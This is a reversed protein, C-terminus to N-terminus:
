IVGLSHINGILYPNESSIPRKFGMERTSVAPQAPQVLWALTRFILFYNFLLLSLLQVCLSFENSIWCPDSRKIKEDRAMCGNLFRSRDDYPLGGLCSIMMFWPVYVRAYAKWVTHGEKSKM